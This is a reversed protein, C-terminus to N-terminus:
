ELPAPKRPAPKPTSGGKATASATNQGAKATTTARTTAPKGPAAAPKGATAAGATATAAPKVAPKVVPKIEAGGEEAIDPADGEAFHDAAGEAGRGLPTGPALAVDDHRHNPDTIRFFVEGNKIMGMESRACEEIAELGQKLDIVEAALSQNREKLQAIEDKQEAVATKLKDVDKIGGRTYWLSYQLYLTLLVLFAIVLRM